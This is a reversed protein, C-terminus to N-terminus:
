LRRSWFVQIGFALALALAALLARPDLESSCAGGRSGAREGLRQPRAGGEAPAASAVVTAGAAPKGLEIAYAAALRAFKV